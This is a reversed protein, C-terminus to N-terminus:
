SVGGRRLVDASIVTEMEEAGEALLVLASPMKTSDTYRRVVRLNTSYRWFILGTRCFPLLRSGLFSTPMGLPRSGPNELKESVPDVKPCIDGLKLTNRGHNRRYKM